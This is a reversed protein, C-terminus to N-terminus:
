FLEFQKPPDTPPPPKAPPIERLSGDTELRGLLPFRGHRYYATQEENAATTVMKAPRYDKGPPAPELVFILGAEPPAPGWILEKTDDAREAIEAVPEGQALENGPQRLWWALKERTAFGMWIGEVEQGGALELPLADGPKWEKGVVSRFRSCM